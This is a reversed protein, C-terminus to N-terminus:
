NLKFLIQAILDVIDSSILHGWSLLGSAVVALFWFEILSLVSFFGQFFGPETRRQGSLGATQELQLLTLNHLPSMQNGLDQGSPWRPSLTKLPSRDRPSM